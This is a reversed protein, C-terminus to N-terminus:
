GTASPWPEPAANSMQKSRAGAGLSRSTTAALFRPGRWRRLIHPCMQGDPAMHWIPSDTVAGQAITTGTTLHAPNSLVIPAPRAFNPNSKAASSGLEHALHVPGRASAGGAASGLGEALGARRRGLAKPWDRWGEVLYLTLTM